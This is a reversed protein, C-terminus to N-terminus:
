AHASGRGHPRGYARRYDVEIRARGRLRSLDAAVSAAMKTCQAVIEPVATIEYLTGHGLPGLAFLGPSSTGHRGIVAGNPRVCIGLRHPDIAALGHRVLSLVFPNRIDPRHGTCDFVLDFSLAPREDGAAAIRVRGDDTPVVRGPVVKVLGRQIAQRLQAHVEPPTRHRAVNWYAKLHRLFRRQDELPLSQWLAQLEDRMGLVLNVAALPPLDSKRMATRFLRLLGALSREALIASRNPAENARHIEPLLGHRSVALAQGRFGRSQLRLFEDVFTLGTGIFLASKAARAEAPDLEAFPSRGVRGTPPSRGYGTALVLYHAAVPPHNELVIEYGASNRRVCTALSRIHTFSVEPRRGVEDSLREEVYDGFIRRPLFARTPEAPGVAFGHRNSRAHAWAAFDGPATDYVGLKGARVNLLHFSDAKGYAVGRGLEDPEIIILDFPEKLTRLLGIAAAAGTFGGGVIAIRPPHSM